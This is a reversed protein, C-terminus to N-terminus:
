WTSGSRALTSRPAIAIGWLGLMVPVEGDSQKTDYRPCENPLDYGEASSCDTCEVAGAFQAISKKIIVTEQIQEFYSIVNKNLKGRPKEEQTENSELHHM